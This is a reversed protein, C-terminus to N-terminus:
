AIHSRIRDIAKAAYQEDREICIWKRNANEAAIATTGSGATNDLVTQWENTYTRIMYEFLAVPKQTPHLGKNGVSNFEIVQKPYRRGDSGERRPGSIGYNPSRVNEKKSVAKYPKGSGFQPFYPAVGDAFVLIDEKDRLPMKKANLHGTGQPKRWVWDYKFKRLQSCVLMSTFPQAATLVVAGKCLRWYEPWLKELPLISDWKNQTTGYPLDALVMDIWANPIDAMVDFCDGIYLTGHGIKVAEYTM